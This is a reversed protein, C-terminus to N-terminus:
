RFYKKLTQISAPIAILKKKNNIIFMSPTAYIFYDSVTKGEWGKLDCVNIWKLENKVIFDIWDSKVTDISVAIVKTDTKSQNKYLSDLEPILEKCHPCWSAYFIILILDSNIKNLDIYNGSSDPLSFEPVLSGPKFRKLQEIRNSILSESNDELCVNDKIIYNEILYNVSYEFKYHTFSDILISLAKEYVQRNSKFKNLIAEAANLYAKEMQRKSFDPNFSLFLYDSIKVSLM